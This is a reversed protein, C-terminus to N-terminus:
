KKPLEIDTAYPEREMQGNKQVVGGRSYMTLPDVNKPDFTNLPNRPLGAGDNPPVKSFDPPNNVVVYGGLLGGVFLFSLGLLFPYRVAIPDMGLQGIVGKGTLVEMILGAMFGMMALRGVEREQRKGFGWFTGPGGLGFGAKEPEEGSARAALSRSRSQRQQNLSQTRSGLPPISTIRNSFAGCRLNFQTSSRCAGTTAPIHPSTPIRTLAQISAAM